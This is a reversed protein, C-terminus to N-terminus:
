PLLEEFRLGRAQLAARFANRARALISQAAEFSAGLEAAIDDVSREDLYKWQLVEGYRGPLEDLIARLLLGVERGHLEVTHDSQPDSVAYAVARVSDCQDMSAYRRLDRRQIEARDALEHRCIQVLWTFLTADGRWQRLAGMAKCLTRQAVEAALDQDGGTRVLAFRYLRDFYEDFFAKFAREDGALLRSVLDRNADSM